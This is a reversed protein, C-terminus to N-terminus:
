LRGNRATEVLSLPVSSQHGSDMRPVALVLSRTPNLFYCLLAM